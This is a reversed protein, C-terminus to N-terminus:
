PRPQYLWDMRHPTKWREIGQQIIENSIGTVLKKTIKLGDTANAKQKLIEAVHSTHSGEGGEQVGDAGSNMTRKEFPIDKAVGWQRVAAHIDKEAASGPTEQHHLVLSDTHGMLTLYSRPVKFSFSTNRKEAIKTLRDHLDPLAEAIKSRDEITGVNSFTYFRKFVPKNPNLSRDGVQSQDWHGSLDIIGMRSTKRRWQDQTAAYYGPIDDAKGAEEYAAGGDVRRTMMSYIKESSHDPTIVKGYAERNLIETLYQRFSKM